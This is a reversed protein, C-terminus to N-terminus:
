LGAEGYGVWGTIWSVEGYGYGQKHISLLNNLTNEVSERVLESLHDKIQSADIQIVKSLDKSYKKSM